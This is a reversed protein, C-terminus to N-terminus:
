LINTSCKIRRTCIKRTALSLNLNFIYLYLCIIRVMQLITLNLIPPNLNGLILESTLFLFLQPPLRNNKLKINVNFIELSSQLTSKRYKSLSINRSSVRQWCSNSLNQLHRISETSSTLVLKQGSQVEGVVKCDLSHERFCSQM